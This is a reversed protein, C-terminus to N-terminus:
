LQDLSLWLTAQLNKAQDVSVADFAELRAKLGFDVLHKRLQLLIVLLNILAHYVSLLEDLQQLLNIALPQRLLRHGQELWVDLNILVVAM